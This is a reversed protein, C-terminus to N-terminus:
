GGQRDRVRVADADTPPLGGGYLPSISESGSRYREDDDDDRSHHHYGPPPSAPEEEEEEGHSRHHYDDEDDDYYGGGDRVPSRSDPAADQRGYPSSLPSGYRVLGGTDDLDQMQMQVDFRSRDSRTTSRGLLLERTCRLSGVEYHRPQEPVTDLRSPTPSTAPEPSSPAMLMAKAREEEAERQQQQQKEREQKKRQQM